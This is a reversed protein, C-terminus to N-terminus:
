ALFELEQAAAINEPWLRLSKELLTRAAATNGACRQVMARWYCTMGDRQAQPDNMYSNFESIMDEWGYAPHADRFDLSEVIRSLYTRAEIEKGLAKMAQAYYFAMDPLKAASGGRVLRYQEAAEETRGMQALAVAGYYRLPVMESQRWFGSHLNEPLAEPHQALIHAEEANGAALAAGYRM